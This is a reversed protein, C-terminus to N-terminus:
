DLSYVEDGDVDNEDDTLVVDDADFLEVVESECDNVEDILMDVETLVLGVAVRDDDDEVDMDLEFLVLGVVVCDDDDEVDMDLECLVLGVAVRDYEGEIVIVLEYEWVVDMVSETLREIDAVWPETVRELVDDSM